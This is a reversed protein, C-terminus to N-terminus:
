SHCFKFGFVPFNFLSLSLSLHMILYQGHFSRSPAPGLRCCLLSERGGWTQAGPGKADRRSGKTSNSHCRGVRIAFVPISGASRLAPPCPLWALALGPAQPAHGAPVGRHGRLLRSTRHRVSPRHGPSPLLGGQLFGHTRGEALDEQPSIACVSPLHGDWGEVSGPSGRAVGQSEAERWLSFVPLQQQRACGGCCVVWCQGLARCTAVRFCAGDWGLLPQRHRCTCSLCDWAQM